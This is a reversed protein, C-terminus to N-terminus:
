GGAGPLPLCARLALAGLRMGGLKPRRRYVDFRVRRVRDLVQRGGLWTWRVQFGLGGGIRGPLSRSAAYLAETRDALEEMLAVFQPRLAAAGSVLDDEAVGFRERERRPVYIRGRAADIALDQWFNTLQLASCLADSQRFLEAESRRCLGLLIRGVPNASRRCYDIVEEWTEYRSQVADQRFASLLDEFPALPLRHRQLTDALAVFVPHSAEGAAARRLHIGWAELRELRAGAHQPEDAFDDAGRAFAYVAAVPDRLPRPLFASAVPFNEYHRSAIERCRAYAACPARGDVALSSSPSLAM